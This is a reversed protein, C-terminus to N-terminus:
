NTKTRTNMVSIIKTLIKAQKNKAVTYCIKDYQIANEFIIETAMYLRFSM